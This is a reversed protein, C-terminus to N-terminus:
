SNTKGRDHYLLIVAAADLSFLCVLDPVKAWRGAMNKKKEEEEEKKEEEQEDEKGGGEV